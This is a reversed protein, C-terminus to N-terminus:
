ITGYEYDDAEETGVKPLHICFRKTCSELEPQEVWIQGGHMEIIKSTISLGLGSGARSNRSEDGMVFPEFLHELVADDIATGTDAVQIEWGSNEVMSIQIKTGAPNHKIANSFLNAVARGLQAKDIMAFCKKEPLEVELEMKSQEIDSYMDASIERLFETLDLREKKLEFGESDLKVYDFLVTILRSIQMSKRCITNLYEQQKEPSTVIGENLAQAYGSIATIPTKLDHAIDSLLLNRRKINQEREARDIARIEEVKKIVMYSYAGIGVAYPLFYLTFSVFLVILLIVNVKEPEQIINKIELNLFINQLFVIMPPPLIFSVAMFVSGGVLYLFIQLLLMASEIATMRGVGIQLGYVDHLMPFVGQVIFLNIVSESILIFIMVFMLRVIFYEKLNETKKTMSENRKLDIDLAESRRLIITAMM